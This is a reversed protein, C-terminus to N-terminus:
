LKLKSNKLFGKAKEIRRLLGEKLKINLVSILHQYNELEILKEWNKEKELHVAISSILNKPISYALEQPNRLVSLLISLEKESKLIEFFKDTSKQEDQILEHCKSKLEIVNEIKQLEDISYGVPIYVSGQWNDEFENYWISGWAMVKGYHWEDLSDSLRKNRKPTYGLHIDHNNYIGVAYTDHLNYECLAYGNFYGSHLAPSLDRYFMGKMEFKKIGKRKYLLKTEIITTKNQDTFNIETSKNVVNEDSTKDDTM